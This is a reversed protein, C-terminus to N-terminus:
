EGDQRSIEVWCNPTEYLVVKEVVCSQMIKTMSYFLFSAMTEATPERDFVVFDKCLWMKPYAESLNEDQFFVPAWSSKEEKEVIVDTATDKSILMHHDFYKLFGLWIKKLDGFDVVMGTKPDVDGSVGLIAKYRHGHIRKCKGPHKDLRHAADFEGSIYCVIKPNM